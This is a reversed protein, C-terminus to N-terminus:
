LGGAPQVGAGRIVDEYYREYQPIIKETSFQEMARRRGAATRQHLAYDTLPPVVRRKPASTESPNWSDM